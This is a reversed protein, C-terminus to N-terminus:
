TWSCATFCSTYKELYKNLINRIKRNFNGVDIFSSGSSSKDSLHVKNGSNTYILEM